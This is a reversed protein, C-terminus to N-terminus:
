AGAEFALGHAGTQSQPYVSAAYIGAPGGTGLVLNRCNILTMGMHPAAATAADLGVAGLIRKGGGSDETLLAIVPLSKFVTIGLREVEAALREVMLRSTLPGASTARQRPDNDTKYGPYSGFRDHPFPVGLEVLHFFSQLSGAAESLAIDGHMSGGRFLDEAMLRPADAAGASLSLKYYTQKDSGANRSTGGEWSETALAIDTAGLRHLRVAANLAAAGSGIILTNLSHVPFKRGQIEIESTRLAQGAGKRNRKPQSSDPGAISPGGGGSKKTGKGRAPRRMPGARVPGPVGGCLAEQGPHRLRRPRRAEPTRQM